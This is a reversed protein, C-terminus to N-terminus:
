NEEVEKFKGKGTKAKGKKNQWKKNIVKNKDKSKVKSKIKKKLNKKRDLKKKRLKEVLEKKKEVKLKAIKKKVKKSIKKKLGLKKGKSLSAMYGASLERRVRNDGKDYSAREEIFGTGETVAATVVGDKIWVSIDSGKVGAVATDTRVTLASKKNGFYDNLVARLRGSFLSILSSNAKNASDLVYETIEIKSNEGVTIVTHDELEITLTTNEGTVIIDGIFVEMEVAAKVKKGTSKEIHAKSGSLETIWGSNDEDGGSFGAFANQPGTLAIGLLFTIIFLPLTKKYFRVRASAM